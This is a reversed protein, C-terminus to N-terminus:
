TSRGKELLRKGLPPELVLLLLVALLAGLSTWISSVGALFPFFEKLYKGLEASGQSIASGILRFVPSSPAASDAGPLPEFVGMVALIAITVAGLLLLGFMGAAFEILRSSSARLPPLGVKMLVTQTFLPGVTSLPMRAVLRDFRVLSQFQRRCPSCAHLHREIEEREAEASERDILRYLQEDTYHESMSNM